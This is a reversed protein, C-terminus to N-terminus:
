TKMRLMMWFGSAGFIINPVWAAVFPSLQNIGGLKGFLEFTLWYIIGVALCFGIGYFAGKRGTKFSFPVGILAMIFSVMPFSVKQYLQVTLRGVDFGSQRLSEVYGRLEAYNMQDSERVERKFYPPADMEYIQKRDFTQTQSVTDNTSFTRFWGDELTWNGGNWTARKAFLREQVQFREPDIKLISLNALTNLTPDFFTYHYVQNGSGMMLKRYPDRYTQPAQDKIIDHYEDQVRNTWPLVYDQLVYVIGSLAAAMLIVPLSMRYLSVAGAKVALIENTKTLTGLNILIALLVALPAVWCFIQPMLFIFYIVVTTAPIKHEIIDRILEFLTVVIFLSAFVSLVILFFFWFGRLVYADLLRFLRFRYSLTYAWQSLNLGHRPRLGSLKSKIWQTGSALTAILRNEHQRDARALLFAGLTMFVINPLWAGIVPPLSGEATVRTGGFLTIYYAFMLVLSLVLGTSRGGRNTSIGLPLGLLAFAFCAFPLALRRHFEIAEELSTTRTRVREWLARTPTEEVPPAKPPDPPPLDVSVTTTAFRSIKYSRPDDKDVIHQSGNSMSFQLSQNSNWPITVREALTFEPNDPNKVDVLLIGRGQIGNGTQAENLWIVWPWNRKEYFQRPRVEIPPYKLKFNALTARLNGSTGPTVWLTLAMTAAWALTAVVFVPRLIRTMSIGSARMAIAESDSSLRSFGTLIGMLLAMPLTVPLVIPLLQSIVGWIEAASPSQRVIIDVLLGGRHTIVIFTLAVLAILGPVLVERFIYRDLRRM